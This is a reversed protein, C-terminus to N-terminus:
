EVRMLEVAKRKAEDNPHVYINLTTSIDSHGLLESVTKADAGNRILATAFTHRLGHFNVYELGNRTLFRKYWSAYANPEYYRLKGTNVYNDPPQNEKIPAIVDYLFNSIPVSRRSKKSKPSSIKVESKTRNGSELDCSYVRNITKNIRIERSELDIDRWQLSCVEGLRLGTHICILVGLTNYKLKSMCADQLHKLEDGVFVSPPTYESKPYELELFRIDCLGRKVASNVIQMVIRMIYRISSTALGQKHLTLILCQLVDENIDSLEIEGIHPLVRSDLMVSYQAATSEKISLRKKDLWKITYEKFNM